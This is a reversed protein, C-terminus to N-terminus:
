IDCSFYRTVTPPPQLAFRHSLLLPHAFPFYIHSPSMPLPNPADVFLLGYFDHTYDVLVLSPMFIGKRQPNSVFFQSDFGIDSLPAVRKYQSELIRM